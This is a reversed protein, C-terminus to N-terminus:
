GHPGGRASVPRCGAARGGHATACRSSVVMLDGAPARYALRSGVTYGAVRPFEIHTPTFFLPFRCRSTTRYYYRTVLRSPCQPLPIVPFGTCLVRTNMRRPTPPAAARAIRARNKRVTSTAYTLGDVGSHIISHPRCMGYLASYPYYHHTSWLPLGGAMEDARRPRVSSRPGPTASSCPPSPLPTCM